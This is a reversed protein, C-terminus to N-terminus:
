PRSGQREPHPEAWASVDLGTLDALQQNYPAFFAALEARWAPDLPPYHDPGFRRNWRKVLNCVRRSRPQIHTYAAHQLWISRPLRVHNDRRLPMTAAPSEDVGLFAFTQALTTQPHQHFDEFLLFLMQEHPFYQRYRQVQTVYISRDIYNDLAHQDLVAQNDRLARDFSRQERGISIFQWYHSYLRDVPNRFLWILRANPATAAIRAPVQPSYAYLPTREGVIQGPDAAAFAAEYYSLGQSYHRPINFFHQEAQSTFVAPHQNITYAFATTGSRMTGVIIFDPPRPM